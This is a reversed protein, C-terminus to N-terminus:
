FLQLFPPERQATTNLCCGHPCSEGGGRPQRPCYCPWLSLCTSVRLGALLVATLGAALALLASARLFRRTGLHNELWWGLTPPLLLSLLRGPLASCGLAHTLLGHAQWPDPLLEPDLCSQLSQLPLLLLLLLFSSDLPLAPCLLCPTPRPHGRAHM